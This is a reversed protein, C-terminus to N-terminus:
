IFNRAQLHPKLPETLPLDALKNLVIAVSLREHQM